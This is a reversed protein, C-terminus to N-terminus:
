PGTFVEEVNVSKVKRDEDLHVRACWDQKILVSREGHKMGYIVSTRQDFSHTYGCQDLVQEADSRSAGVQIKEPLRQMCDDIKDKKACGMVTSFVLAVLLMRVNM